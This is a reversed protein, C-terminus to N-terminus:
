ASSETRLCWIALLPSSQSRMSHVINPPNYVIGGIAPEHWADANQRWNGPSLVLYVEEPVHQHDPYVTDPAMLSVGIQVHDHAALGNPGVIMANAHNAAFAQSSGKRNYWILEPEIQALAAAVAAIDRPGQQALGAAAEFHACAALRVSSRRAENPQSQSIASFILKSARSAESAPAVRAQIASQTLDFFRQLSQVRTAMQM